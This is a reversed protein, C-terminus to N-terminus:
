HQFEYLQWDDDGTFALSHVSEGDEINVQNIQTPYIDRLIGDLVHIKGSLRGSLEQFVLVHDGALEAGVLALGLDGDESAIRFREEVYLAIYARGELDLVSLDTLALVSGVGLEADHSHLRHIIETKGSAQNWEITTLSGPARHAFSTLAWSLAVVAIILHRCRRTTTRV